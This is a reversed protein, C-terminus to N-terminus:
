GLLLLTPYKLMLLLRWMPREQRVVLRLLKLLNLLEKLSRRQSLSLSLWPMPVPRVVSTAEVVEAHKLAEDDFTTDKAPDFVVMALSDVPGYAVGAKVPTLSAAEIMPAVDASVHEKSAEIPVGGTSGSNSAM